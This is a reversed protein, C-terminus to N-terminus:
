PLKGRVGVAFPEMEGRRHIAFLFHLKLPFHDEILQVANVSPYFPAYWLVPVAALVASSMAARIM